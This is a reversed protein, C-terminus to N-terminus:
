SRWSRNLAESLAGLDLVALWDTLLSTIQPKRAHSVDRHGGHDM